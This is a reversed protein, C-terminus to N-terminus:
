SMSPPCCNTSAYRLAKGPVAVRQCSVSSAECRHDASFPRSREIPLVHRGTRRTWLLFRRTWQEAPGVRHRPLGADDSLKAQQGHLEVYITQCEPASAYQGTGAFGCAFAVNDCFVSASFTSNPPCTAADIAADLRVDTPGVGDTPGTGDTPATGESAPGDPVSGDSENRNEGADTETGRADRDVAAGADTGVDVLVRYKTCASLLGVTLAMALLKSPATMRLGAGHCRILPPQDIEKM